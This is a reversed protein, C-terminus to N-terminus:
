LKSYDLIPDFKNPNSETEGPCSKGDMLIHAIEVHGRKNRKWCFGSTEFDFTQLSAMKIEETGSGRGIKLVLAGNQSYLYYQDMAKLKSETQKDVMFSVSTLLQLGQDDQIYQRVTTNAENNLQTTMGVIDTIQMQYYRPQAATSDQFEVMPEQAQAELYKAYKAKISPSIGISQISVSIPRDLVPEGVKQIDKKFLGSRYAGISGIGPIQSEVKQVNHLPGCAHLVLAMLIIVITPKM